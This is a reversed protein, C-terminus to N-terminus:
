GVVLPTWRWNNEQIAQDVRPHPKLYIVLLKHRVDIPIEILKASAPMMDQDSFPINFDRLAEKLSGFQPPQSVGAILRPQGILLNVRRQMLYSFPALRQHGPRDGFLVGNRAVWKDNLGFMDVTELRSYYPIAGAATTATLITRDFNFAQGLTKGIGIWNEDENEVHRQLLGVSEIQLPYSFTLVHHLSGSLILVVLMVKLIANKIQTSILWSTAVFFAPLIPAILRFEMFDGGVYILYALWGATACIVLVLGPNQKTFLTWAAYLLLLPIPFLLYSYFFLAVYEAGQIRSSGGLVKAYYTNPIIDGYYHIKWLFWAGVIIAVPSFLCLLGILKQRPGSRERLLGIIVVPFVVVLLVASDLRTLLAASGAVSLIFLKRPTTGAKVFSVALYLCIVFLCAQMPTELGGTAFSSFTYNSGLFVLALLAANRSSTLMSTLKYSFVLSVAFSILGLLFSFTKPDFGFRIPISMLITWLFNTYGEVRAGQSWVLGDGHAFNYAYRFSIFADDLIFRNYWAFVMSGTFVLFVVLRFNAKYTDAWSKM